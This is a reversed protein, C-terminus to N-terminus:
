HVCSTRSYPAASGDLHLKQVDEHTGLAGQNVVRRGHKLVQNYGAGHQMPLSAGLCPPEQFESAVAHYTVCAPHEHYCSLAYQLLGGM